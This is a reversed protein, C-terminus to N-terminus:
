QDNHDEHDNHDGFYNEHFDDHGHAPTEPSDGHQDGHSAVIDPIANDMSSSPTSIIGSIVLTSDSWGAGALARVMQLKNLSVEKGVVLTENSSEPEIM